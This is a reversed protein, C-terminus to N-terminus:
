CNPKTIIAPCHRFIGHKWQMHGVAATDDPVSNRISSVSEHRDGAIVEAIASCERVGGIMWAEQLALNVEGIISM